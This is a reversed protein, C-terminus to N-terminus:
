VVDNFKASFKNELMAREIINTYVHRRAYAFINFFKYLVPKGQLRQKAMCPSNKPFSLLAIIIIFKTFFM